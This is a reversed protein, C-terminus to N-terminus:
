NVNFDVEPLEEFSSRLAKWLEKRNQPPTKRHAKATTGGRNPTKTAARKLFGLKKDTETAAPEQKGIGMRAAQADLVMDAYQRPHPHGIREGEMFANNWMNGLPSLVGPASFLWEKNAESFENLERQRNHQYLQAQVQQMVQQTVAETVPNSIASVPDTLLQDVAQERWDHWAQYKQPLTPDGGPRVQLNGEADRYLFTLAKRDFPPAEGWPFKPKAAEAPKPAQAQQLQRMQETLSYIYGQYQQARAADARLSQIYPILREPDDPIDNLGSKQFVSGLTVEEDAAETTEVATDEETAEDSEPTEPTETVESGDTEDDTPGTGADNTADEQGGSGIKPGRSGKVRELSAASASDLEAPKFCVGDLWNRLLM